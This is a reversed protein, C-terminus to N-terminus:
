EREAAAAARALLEADSVDLRGGPAAVAVTQGKAQPRKQPTLMRYTFAIEDPLAVIDRVGSWARGTLAFYHCQDYLEMGGTQEPGRKNVGPGPLRGRAIFKIGAGSPSIEGYTRSFIRVAVKAWTMVGGGDLCDDIDAGVFPDALMFGIGDFGSLACHSGLELTRLADDIGSWTAPDNPRARCNPRLPQYPVKAPKGGGRDEYRWNVFQRRGKLDAPLDEVVPWVLRPRATDRAERTSVGVV